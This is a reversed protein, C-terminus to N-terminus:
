TEVSYLQKHVRSEFLSCYYNAVRDSEYMKMLVKNSNDDLRFLKYQGLGVFYQPHSERLMDVWEVHISISHGRLELYDLVADIEMLSVYINVFDYTLSYELM